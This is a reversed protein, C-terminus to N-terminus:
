TKPYFPSFLQILRFSRETANELLRGANAMSAEITMPGDAVPIVASFGIAYFNQVNDDLLGTFGIVPKNNNKAMLAVGAPTKGFSTQADMKGEGTIVLDAWSIWKKLGTTESILAFGNCIKGNLFAVIGAGLGGAAGGGKLTSVDKHLERSILHALHSLNDDLMRVAGSDAGKQPGFVFAAGEPGTLINTVDCAILLECEHIRSDLQSLDIHSITNLNGGSPIIKNGAIDKFHIGLATAMGTGGDVTASGGIGVIIKRCGKDLAHRILEGTGYSTTHLPNREAKTLLAMGSAAAMEIFATNGDGSIGYFSKVQRMLPDSITVHEIKGKTAAVLADVTGEGGDAMPILTCEALPIVKMIGIRIHEAVDCASLSEKFKDPCILIKM